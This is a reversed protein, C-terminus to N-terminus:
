WKYRDEHAPDGPNDGAAFQARACALSSEFDQVFAEKQAHTYHPPAYAIFDIVTYGKENCTPLPYHTKGCNNWKKLLEARDDNNFRLGMYEIRAIDYALDSPSNSLDFCIGGSFSFAM